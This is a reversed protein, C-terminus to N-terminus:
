GGLLRAKQAQFEADTLHGAQHLEILKTLEDATSLQAAAAGGVRDFKRNENDEMEQYLVNQVNVPDHVDEFVQRGMEGASEIVLTGAGVMRDILGQEFFVTNIRELPIEVGRKSIIGSRYICRDTTVVFNTSYWELWAQAFYIVAALILLAGIWFLVTDLTGDGGRAILFIGVATSLVVAVVGKVLMIWHPHLDLVLQENRHLHSESIGV